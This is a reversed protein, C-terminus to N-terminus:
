NNKLCRINMGDSKIAMDSRSIRSEDFSVGHTWAVSVERSTSSWWSASVGEWLYESPGVSRFGGPIATFGSENNAEISETVWNVTGSEKMKSGEVTGASGFYQTAQDESMGLSMKLLKWDDESPVHWGTPCIIGTNVTYWNYYAGYMNRFYGENNQFWCYGPTLLKSWSEDDEVLPILSGDNLRTSRLNEAMWEQNGIHITKYINDEIDKLTGYILSNNFNKSITLKKTEFSVQNGYYINGSIDKAYTRMYYKTNPSFHTIYLYLNDNDDRHNTISSENKITPNPLTNWCFGDEILSDSGQTLIKGKFWASTRAIQTVPDTNLSPIDKERKCSDFLLMLFIGLMSLLIFPIIMVSKIKM